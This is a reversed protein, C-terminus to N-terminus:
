RVFFAIVALLATTALLIETINDEMVLSSEGRGRVEREEVQGKVEKGMSPFCNVVKGQTDCVCTITMGYPHCV